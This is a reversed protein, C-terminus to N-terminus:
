RVVSSRETNPGLINKVLVVVLEPEWSGIVLGYEGLDGYDIDLADVTPTPRLMNWYCHNTYQGM